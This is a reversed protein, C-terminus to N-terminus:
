RLPKGTCVVSLRNGNDLLHRDADILSTNAVSLDDCNHKLHADADMLEKLAAALEDRQRTASRITLQTFVHSVLLLLVAIRLYWERRM